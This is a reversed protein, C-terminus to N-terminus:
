VPFNHNIAMLELTNKQIRYNTIKSNHMCITLLTIYLHSNELFYNKIASSPAPYGSERHFKIISVRNREAENSFYIISKYCPSAYDLIIM